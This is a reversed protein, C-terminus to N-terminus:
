VFDFISKPEHETAIGVAVHPYGDRRDVGGIPLWTVSQAVLNPFSASIEAAMDVNRLAPM